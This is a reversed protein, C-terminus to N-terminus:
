SKASSLEGGCPCIHCNSTQPHMCNKDHTMFLILNMGRQGTKNDGQAMNGCDKGFATKWMEATAPNHMLQKYSSITKGTTPHVMPMAVQEFNLCPLTTKQRLKTPMFINPSTAGVCETLFNIKEQSIFPAHNIGGQIQQVKVRPIRMATGPPTTSPSCRPTPLTPALTLIAPVQQRASPAQTIALVSGPTNNHMHQLHAQRTLKLVYPATLNPATMIPPADTLWQLAPVFPPHTTDVRQEVRQQPPIVAPVRQLDSPPLIWKHNLSTLQQKDKSPAGISLKNKIDSLVKM